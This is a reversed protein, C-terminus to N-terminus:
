GGRKPCFERAALYLYFCSCGADVSTRDRLDFLQDTHGPHGEPARPFEVELQSPKRLHYVGHRRWKYQVPDQCYFLSPFAWNSRTEM